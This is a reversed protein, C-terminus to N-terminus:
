SKHSCRLWLDRRQSITHQPALTASSERLIESHVQSPITIMHELRYPFKRQFSGQELRSPPSPVTPSELTHSRRKIAVETETLPTERTDYLNSIPSPNAQLKTQEEKMHRPSPAPITRAPSRKSSTKRTSERQWWLQQSSDSRLHRSELFLKGSLISCLTVRLRWWRATAATEPWAACGCADRAVRWGSTSRRLCVPRYNARQREARGGFCESRDSMAGLRIVHVPQLAM